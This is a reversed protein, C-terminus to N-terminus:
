LTACVGLVGAFDTKEALAIMPKQNIWLCANLKEEIYPIISDASKMIGGGLILKEPDFALILNLIGSSWAALSQERIELALKDAQAAYHFVEEYGPSKFSKLKSFSHENDMGIRKALSWTSAETELCGTNGCNCPDGLYNIIMHGGLNGAISNRGRLMEGNLLVASGVGTGLTIMVLNVNGKGSGYKWEAMLASRADNEIRLPVQWNKEAWTSPDIEDAGPYKVYKSLIRSNKFDVIGPFAIGIGLLKSGDLLSNIDEVLLNLRELFGLHALSPLYQKDLIEGEPSIVAMKIQTGGMDLGVHVGIKKM